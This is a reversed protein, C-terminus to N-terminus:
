YGNAKLPWQSSGAQGFIAYLITRNLCSLIPIYASTPQNDGCSTNDTVKLFTMMVIDRGAILWYDITESYSGSHFFLWVTLRVSYKDISPQWMVPLDNSSYWDTVICYRWKLYM